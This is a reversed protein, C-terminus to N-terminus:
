IHTSDFSKTLMQACGKALVISLRNHIGNSIDIIPLNLYQSQKRILYKLFARAGLGMGGTTEFGVPKFDWRIAACLHSMRKAKHDEGQTASIGTTARVAQSTSSRLPHSVTVDIAIPRQGGRNPLFVDAPRYTPIDPDPPDPVNPLPVPALPATVTSPRDLTPLSIEILPDLGAMRCEDALLNRILNHRTYIGSAHCSLSHDGNCPMVKASASCHTPDGQTM